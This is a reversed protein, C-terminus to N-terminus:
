AAKPTLYRVRGARLASTDLAYAGNGLLALVLLAGAWLAPYEWGGNPNSFGFGNAWHFQVVGLMMAFQLLAVLRPLFGIILAIGGGFEALIVLYALFEPYGISGFFGVTGPITFVFIKISGHVLFLAGLVLRLLLAAYPATRQDIM